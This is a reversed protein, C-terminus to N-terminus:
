QSISELKKKLELASVAFNLGESEKLIFTNMGVVRKSLDSILPGGSNGPNIATDTQILDIGNNRNASIIGRTITWCLGKPAGIAVVPTGPSVQDQLKLITTSTCPTKILAIDRYSDNSIVTGFCKDGNKKKIILEKNNGIVHSNTAIIDKKLFFGSGLYKDTYVVVVGNLLNNYDKTKFTNQNNNVAYEDIIRNSVSATLKGMAENIYPMQESKDYASAFPAGVITLAVAVKALDTIPNERRKMYIPISESIQRTGEDTTVNSTLIFTSKSDIVKTSDFSVKILIDANNDYHSRDDTITVRHFTNQLEKKLAYAVDPFPYLEVTSSFEKMFDMPYVIQVTKNSKQDSEMTKEYRESISTSVPVSCGSIMLLISFIACVIKM